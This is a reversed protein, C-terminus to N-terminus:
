SVHRYASSNPDYIDIWYKMTFMENPVQLYPELRKFAEEFKSKVCIDEWEKLILVPLRQYLADLSSSKVVPILGFFLMEWTRHCDLGNGHPSFGFSYETYKNWIVSVPQRGSHYHPICSVKMDMKFRNSYMGMGDTLIKSNRVRMALRMRKMVELNRQADKFWIGKWHTHLDFGIPVPHLKPHIVSGDYNQTYWGLLLPSDLLQRAGIIKGPVSNDGDTTVLRFPRKMRPLVSSIFTRVDNNRGTSLRVWILGECKSFFSIMDSEKFRAETVAAYYRDPVHECDVMNKWNSCCFALIMRCAFLVAVVIVVEYM